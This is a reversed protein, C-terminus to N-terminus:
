KTILSGPGARRSPVWRLSKTARCEWSVFSSSISRRELAQAVEFAVPVGGRPLALVLVDPQGIYDVLKAALRRGSETRDRFPKLM